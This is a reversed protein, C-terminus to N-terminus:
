IDYNKRMYIKIKFMIILISILILIIAPIILYIRYKIDYSNFTLYDFFITKIMFLIILYLFVGIIYGILSLISLREVQFSIINKNKIGLSHLLEIDYNSEIINKKIYVNIIVLDLFVVFLIIIKTIMKITSFINTDNIVQTSVRYGQELLTNLVKNINDHEDVTIIYSTLVDPNLDVYLNNYIDMLDKKSAYCTNLTNGTLLPDYLGVVKFKKTYKMKTDQYKNNIRKFINEEITIEKNLIDEDKYFTFNNNLEFSPYFNKSCILKGTTEDDINEGIISKINNVGFTLEIISGEIEKISFDFFDYNMSHIDEVYEYEKIEELLEDINEILKGNKDVPSLIINKYTIDNNFSNILMSKYTYYFNLSIMLMVILISFIIIYFINKKNRFTSKIVYNM